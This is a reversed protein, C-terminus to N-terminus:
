AHPTESNGQADSGRKVCFYIYQYDPEALEETQTDGDGPAQRMKIIKEMRIEWDFDEKKQLHVLRREPGGYSIFIYVGKPKLVRYIEKLIQNVKEYSNEGCFFCDLTAKDLVIDFTQQAYKLNRCDAVEDIM